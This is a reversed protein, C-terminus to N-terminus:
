CNDEIGGTVIGTTESDSKTRKQDETYGDKVSRTKRFTDDAVGGTLSRKSDIGLILDAIRELLMDSDPQDKFAISAIKIKPIM